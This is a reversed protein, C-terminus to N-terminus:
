ELEAEEGKPLRTHQKNLLEMVGQVRQQKLKERYQDLAAAADFVKPLHVFRLQRGKVFLLTYMVPPGQVPQSLADEVM